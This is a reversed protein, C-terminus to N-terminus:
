VRAKLFVGSLTIIESKELVAETGRRVLVPAGHRGEHRQAHAHVGDVQDPLAAGRLRGLELVRHLHPNSLAAARLPHLHAASCLPPSLPLVTTYRQAHADNILRPRAPAAGRLRGLELVRHLHARQRKGAWKNTGKREMGRKM